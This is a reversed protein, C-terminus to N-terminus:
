KSGERLISVLCARKSVDSSSSIFDNIEVGYNFVPWMAKVTKMDYNLEVMKPNLYIFDVSRSGYSSPGNKSYKFIARIEFEFTFIVVDGDQFTM